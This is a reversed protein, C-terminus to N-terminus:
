ETFISEDINEPREEPRRELRCQNDAVSEESSRKKLLLAAHDRLEKQGAPDLRRFEAVLLQEELNLDM